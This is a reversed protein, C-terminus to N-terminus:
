PKGTSKAAHAGAPVRRRRRDRSQRADAGRRRSADLKRQEDAVRTRLTAFISEVEAKEHRTKKLQGQLANLGQRAHVAQADLRSREAELRRIEDDLRVGRKAADLIAGVASDLDGDTEGRKQIEAALLQVAHRALVAADAPAVECAAASERAAALVTAADAVSLKTECLEDHLRRLARSHEPDWGLAAIAQESAELVQTTGTSQQELARVRAELASRSAELSEHERLCDALRKAAERPALGIRKLETAILDTAGPSLGLAVLKEVHRLREEAQAPTVSLRSCVEALAHVKANYDLPNPEAQSAPAVTGGTQKDLSAEMRSRWDTKTWGLPEVITLYDTMVVYLAEDPEIWATAATALMALMTVDIGALREPADLADLLRRKVEDRPEWDPRRPPPFEAPDLAKIRDLLVDGEALLDPPIDVGSVDALISRRLMAEDLGLREDLADRQERPNLTVIPVPQITLVENEDPVTLDGHLYVQALRRVEPRARLWEDLGVIPKDLAARLSLRQGKSGKRSVMSRGSETALYIVFRAPDVGTMLCAAKAIWTKWRLKPGFVVFAPHHSPRLRHKRAVVACAVLELVSRHFATPAHRLHRVHRDFSPAAAAATPPASLATLAERGAPLLRYRRGDRAVLRDQRLRSLLRYTSSKPIRSLVPQLPAPGAELYRLIEIERTDM